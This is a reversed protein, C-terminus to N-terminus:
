KLKGREQPAYQRSLELIKKLRHNVGSRSIPESLHAGLERLSMDPNQLRLLAVEYLEDPLSELGKTRGILEIAELQAAAASATKTLNATEFNTTRNVYNRVEKVMKVQMLEMAASKAGLYTLLDAIHESGKIYVVYAGKREVAKPKISLERQERLFACLDGALGNQLVSFELHYEKSPDTVTGCALFAGRLFAHICCSKKLNKRQIFLPEEGVFHHFRRLARERDSTSPLSLLYGDSEEKKHSYRTSRQAIAQLNQSVLDMYKEAVFRNETCLSMAGASFSKSFLLLGYLEAHACCDKQYDIKCLEKKVDSSFSM